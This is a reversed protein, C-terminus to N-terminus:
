KKEIKAIMSIITSKPQIGVLHHVVIGDAMLAVTPVNKIRFADSLERNEEVNIRCIKINNKEKSIEELLAAMVKCAENGPAWFDLMVMMNEELVQERFNDQTINIVAM